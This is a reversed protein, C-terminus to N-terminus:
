RGPVAVSLWETNVFGAVPDTRYMAVRVAVPARGAPVPLLYSDRVIEGPRWRTTPYWGDVPHAHDAQTLIDAPGAPPDVAVLHVATSYDAAIAATAQWYVTLLLAADGAAEDGGAWELQYGRIVAGNELDFDVPIISSSTLLAAEGVIPAPSLEIVGPAASALYLPGLREEFYSLPFIRLTGDPVVLRDGRAIIDQPRANHDVLTLGDLRGGFRQEYTLTWYDTGWPVLVTTGRTPDPAVRDVAEVVAQSADDRTVSLIFPRTQWAWYGLAVALALPVAVALGRRVRGNEGAGWRSALGRWVFDLVLALGVGALLVVPLKAALQGDTVRNRWILVTVLFNPLWALTLALGIAFRRGVAPRGGVASRQGGGAAESPLREPQPQEPQPRGDTTPLREPQPRGDTTPPREPQPRGDTTPPRNFWLGALGVVLLPLWLDDNLIALTTRVRALWDTSLDFVRDARNDFFLTWFGDWTGPAGFVWDAGMRVRLPLYLYTLPALLAIVVVLLLTRWGMRFVDLLHPWVLLLVAPAILVLSRQHVVGQSFIFTLWLLDARAGSRGFRLAFLLTALTLAMTATHLEGISADMWVSTAVAAALAGLAAFPGTAGLEMALVVLLAVTALGWVLSYLSVAAAPSVGVLRVVSVFLSGLATWQPYGSHHITGWRPLANQHEGVDTVYPHGGGNIITQVTSLYLLAAIIVALSVWLARRSTSM